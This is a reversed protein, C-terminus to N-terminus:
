PESALGDLVSPVCHGQPRGLPVHVLHHRAHRLPESLQRGCPRHAADTLPQLLDIWNGHVTAM